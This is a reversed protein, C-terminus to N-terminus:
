LSQDSCHCSFLAMCKCYKSIEFDNGEVHIKIVPQACKFGRHGTDQISLKGSQLDDMFCETNRLKSVAIKKRM